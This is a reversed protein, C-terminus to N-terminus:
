PRSELKWILAIYIRPTGLVLIATARFIFALSLFTCLLQKM